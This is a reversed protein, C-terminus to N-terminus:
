QGKAVGNDWNQVPRIEVRRVAIGFQRAAGPLIDLSEVVFDLNLLPRESMQDASLDADYIVNGDAFMRRYPLTHGNVRLKLKDINRMSIAYAVVVRLSSRGQCAAPFTLRASPSTTWRVPGKVDQDRWSWGMSLVDQDASWVIPCLQSPDIGPLTIPKDDRNWEIEFGSFDDKSAASIRWATRGRVRLIRVRDYPMTGGFAKANGVGDSDPGFRVRWWSFSNGPFWPILRFSIDDRQLWNRAMVPSLTDTSRWGSRNPTDLILLVQLPPSHGVALDEAVFRALSARVFKENHTIEIQVRNHGLSFLVGIAVGLSVAATWLRYRLSGRATAMMLVFAVVGLLLAPTTVQYLMPWRTGPPRIESSSELAVTPAAICALVILVDLLRPVTIVSSATGPLRKRLQLAVFSIIGCTLAAVVFAARHPSEAVLLYFMALDSSWLGERLSALLGALTFHLGLAAPDLKTVDSASTTSWLLLFLGFLILYPATDALAKGLRKGPVRRHGLDDVPARRLALYGIALVAGCQLIYTAFALFWTVISIAYLFYTRRDGNLFQAYAAVSIFSASLAGQFNWFIQDLYRNAMWFITLIALGLAFPRSQSGAVAMVMCYASLALIAAMAYRLALLGADFDLIVKRAAIYWWPSVPNRSDAAWSLRAADAGAGRQLMDVWSNDEGIPAVGLGVGAGLAELTAIVAIFLALSALVYLVDIFVPTRQTMSSIM